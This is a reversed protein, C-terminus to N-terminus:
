RKRARLPRPRSPTPASRRPRRLGRLRQRLHEPRRAPLARRLSPLHHRRGGGLLDHRGLLERRRRVLFLRLHRDQGRRGLHHLHRQRRRVPRQEHLRGLHQLRRRQRRRGLHGDHARDRQEVLGSPAGGVHQRRDLSSAGTGGTGTGTTTGSGSSKTGTGSCAAFATGLLAAGVIMFSVRVGRYAREMPDAHRKGAARAGALCVQEDQRQACRPRPGCGWAALSPRWTRAWVRRGGCERSRAGAGAIGAGARIRTASRTAVAHQHKLAVGPRMVEDVADVSWEM